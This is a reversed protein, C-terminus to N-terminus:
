HLSYQCMSYYCPWPYSPLVFNNDQIGLAGQSGVVHQLVEGADVEGRLEAARDAM